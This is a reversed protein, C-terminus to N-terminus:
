KTAEEKKNILVKENWSIIDDILKYKCTDIYIYHRAGQYMQVNVKRLKYQDKLLNAFALTGRGFNNVSDAAGGVVLIPM